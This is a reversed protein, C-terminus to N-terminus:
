KPPIKNELVKIEKKLEIMKSERNIAIKQFKELETLRERLEIDKARIAAADKSRRSIDYAMCVWGLMDGSEGNVIDCSFSVPVFSGDKLKINTDASELKSKEQFMKNIGLLTDGNFYETINKNIIEERSLKLFIMARNNVDVIQGDKNLLLLSEAMNDIINKGALTFSLSFLKYKAVAYFMGLAWFVLFTNGTGLISLIDSHLPFFELITGLALSFLTFIIVLMSQRRYLQIETERYYQYLSYIGALFFGLYYSLYLYTWFSYVWTFAVGQGPIRFPALYEATILISPISFIILYFIRKELLKKKTYIFVFWIFFSPFLIWGFSGLKTLFIATENSVDLLRIMGSVGWWIFCLMLLSFVQNLREKSNKSLVVIFINLYVVVVIFQALAFYSVYM